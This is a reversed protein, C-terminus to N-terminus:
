KQEKTLSLPLIRKCDISFSFRCDNNQFDPMAEIGMFRRIVEVFSVIALLVQFYGAFRAINNKLAITGGVAILALAYVVSDALMDLSDAILGMSGSFIGFLM